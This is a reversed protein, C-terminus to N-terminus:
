FRLATSADLDLDVHHVAHFRWLFLLRHHLVHQLYLTYDLLLVAALGQLVRPLRIWQLLGWRRREVIKALPYRIPSEGFPVTLAGRGAVALNRGNRRTKSERESRLPRKRELLFLGAALGIFGALKLFGKMTTAEGCHHNRLRDPRPPSRCACSQGDT